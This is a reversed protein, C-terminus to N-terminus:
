LSIDQLLCCYLYNVSYLTHLEMFPVVVQIFTSVTAVTIRLSSFYTSDTQDHANCLVLSTVNIEIVKDFMSCKLFIADQLKKLRIIIFVITGINTVHIGAIALIISVCNGNFTMRGVM